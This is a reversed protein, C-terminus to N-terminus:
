VSLIKYALGGRGGGGGREREGRRRRRKQVARGVARHGLRQPRPRRRVARRLPPLADGVPQQAHPRARRAREVRRDVRRVLRIREAELQDISYDCIM